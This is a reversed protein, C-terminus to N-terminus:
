ARRRMRGLVILVGLVLLALPVAFLPWTVRTMRPEYSIYDGYRQILQEFTVPGVNESRILRLCALRESDSLEATPLPALKFLQPHEPRRAM